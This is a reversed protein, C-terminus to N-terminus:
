ALGLVRPNVPLQEFAALLPREARAGEGREADKLARRRFLRVGLRRDVDIEVTEFAVVATAL